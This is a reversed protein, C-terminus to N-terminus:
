FEPIGPQRLLLMRTRPPGPREPPGPSPGFFFFSTRLFSLRPQTTPTYKAACGEVKLDEICERQEPFSWPGDPSELEAVLAASRRSHLAESAQEEEGRSRM